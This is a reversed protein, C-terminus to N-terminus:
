VMNSWVEAFGKHSICNKVETYIWKSNAEVKYSIKGKTTLIVAHNTGSAQNQCLYVRTWRSFNGWYRKWHSIFCISVNLAGNFRCGVNSNEFTYITLTSQLQKIRYGLTNQFCIWLWWLQILLCYTRLATNAFTFTSTPAQPVTPFEVDWRTVTTGSWSSILFVLVNNWLSNKSFFFVDGSECLLLVLFCNKRENKELWSKFKFNLQWLSHMSFPTEELKWINQFVTKPLISVNFNLNKENYTNQKPM